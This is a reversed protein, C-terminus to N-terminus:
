NRGASADIISKKEFRVKTRQVIKEAPHMFNQFKALNATQDGMGPNLERTGNDNRIFSAANSLATATLNQLALELSALENENGPIAAM